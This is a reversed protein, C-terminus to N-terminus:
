TSTRCTPASACTISWAGTSPPKWSPAPRTTWSALDKTQKAASSLRARPSIGYALFFGAAAPFPRPPRNKAAVTLRRAVGAQRARAVDAAPAAAQRRHAQCGCQRDGAGGGARRSRRHRDAYNDTSIVKVEIPPIESMRNVHYTDFNSEQPVGDKIHIQEKLAAGLGFIIAGEMQAMVNKPQVVVGPDVAAWVHHVKIIGSKEDLSIDAVAATHTDLADSYALGLAHGAAPKQKWNSMAAVANLVAIARPHKRLLAIRLELPDVGKTAAIEDIMTEIAFKTYGAASAAGPASKSATRLASM